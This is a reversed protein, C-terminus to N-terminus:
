CGLLGSLCGAAAAPSCPPSCPPPRAISAAPLRVIVASSSHSPDDEQPQHDYQHECSFGGDVCRWAEDPSPYPQRPSLVRWEDCADCQVWNIVDEDGLNHDDDNEGQDEGVAEDEDQEGDEYDDDDDEDEHKGFKARLRKRYINFRNRRHAAVRFVAPAAM